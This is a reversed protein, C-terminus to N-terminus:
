KGGFSRSSRSRSSFSRSSKTAYKSGRYTGGSRKYQTAAYGGSRTYKSGAYKTKALTGKSGYVPKGGADRGYYTRGADRTSRYGQWDNYGVDRYFSPGWFLSRMFAYQGYFVWFSGGSRQEWRGYHPNGVYSYGPPSAIKDAEVDYKGKPKSEMTMGLHDEHRQYFEKSVKETEDEVSQENNRNVRIMKYTHFFEVEAGERIEMDELIKDWSVYLQDLLASVSSLSQNYNEAAQKLAQHHSVLADFDIDDEPKENEAVIFDHSTEAAGAMQDFIGMRESIDVKKLPWDAQARTAKVKLPALKAADISKFDAEAERVMEHRRAKYDVLKEAREAIADSTKVATTRATRIESLVATLKQTDDSNNEEFLSKAEGELKARAKGISEQSLDLTGQWGEREAIPELFSTDGRILNEVRERAETMLGAAKEVEETEQEYLDRVTGPIGGMLSDVLVVLIMLVIIGGALTTLTKRDM